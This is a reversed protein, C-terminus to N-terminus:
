RVALKGFLLDSNRVKRRVWGYKPTSLALESTILADMPADTDDEDYGFSPDSGLEQLERLHVWNSLTARQNRRGTTLSSLLQWKYFCVDEDSFAMLGSDDVTSETAMIFSEKLKGTALRRCALIAPWVRPDFGSVDRLCFRFLRNHMRILEADYELKDEMGILSEKQYAPTVEVGDFYHKGCSEFFRGSSFSKDLNVVFGCFQLLEVAKDYLSQEVIIDDGYAVAVRSGLAKILSYFILTELEFTYGNGMSSFKELTVTEGRVLTKRARLADLFLAWDLPLLSFVLERSVTDSAMSLDLTALRRVHAQRALHQNVGQKALDIGASKLRSKLYLGVSRQLYANGRAEVCINRHTKADKPVVTHRNCDEIKFCCPLLSVRTGFEYEPIIAALWHPDAQLVRRLYPLAAFSVTIPLVSIKKDVRAHRRPLELTAGPGWTSLGLRSQCAELPGLVQQLIGAARMLVGDFNSGGRLRRNTEACLKEARDFASLAAEELDIGTDLGKSKSLFKSVLYDGSFAFASDYREPSVGKRALQEHEGYKFLLWCSLSVPTDMAKCLAFYVDSEDGKTPARM